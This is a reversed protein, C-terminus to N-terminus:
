NKRIINGSGPIHTEIAPSGSYFGNGSGSINAGPFKQAYEWMSRSGSVVGDTSNANVATEIIGSGSVTINSNAFKIKIPTDMENKELFDKLEIGQEDNGIRSVITPHLGLKKLHIGVNMPAGGPKKGGPLMDWLVEGYCIIKSFENNKM